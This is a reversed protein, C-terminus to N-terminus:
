NQFACVKSYEDKVLPCQLIIYIFCNKNLEYRLFKLKDGVNLSKVGLIDYHNGSLFIKSNQLVSKM